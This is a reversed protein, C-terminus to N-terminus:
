HIVNIAVAVVFGFRCFVVEHAGAGLVPQQLAHLRLVVFHLRNDPITGTLRSQVQLRKFFEFFFIKRYRQGSVPQLLLVVGCLSREPLPLSAKTFPIGFAM